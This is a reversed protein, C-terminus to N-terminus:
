DLVRQISELGEQARKRIEPVGHGAALTFLYGRAVPGGLEAVATITQLQERLDKSQNARILPVVAKQDGQAVLVGITERVIEQDSDKLLAILNPVVEPLRRKRLSRLVNLRVDQQDSQLDILVQQPTLATSSVQLEMLQVARKVAQSLLREFGALREDYAQVEESQAYVSWKRRQGNECPKTLGLHVEVLRLLSKDRSESTEESALVIRMQARMVDPRKKDVVGFAQSEDLALSLLRCAQENDFGFYSRNTVGLIVVPHEANQCSFLWLFLSMLALFGLFLKILLRGVPVRKAIGSKSLLVTFVTM